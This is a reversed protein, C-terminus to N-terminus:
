LCLVVEEQTDVYICMEDKSDDTRYWAVRRGDYCEKIIIDEEDIEIGKHRYNSKIAEIARNEQEQKALQSVWESTEKCVPEEDNEYDKKTAWVTVEYQEDEAKDALKALYDNDIGDFSIVENWDISPILKGDKDTLPEAEYKEVISGKYAWGSGSIWKGCTLVHYM